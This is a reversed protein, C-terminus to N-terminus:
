KFYEMGEFANSVEQEVRGKYKIKEGMGGLWIQNESKKKGSGEKQLDIEQQCPTYLRGCDVTVLIKWIKQPQINTGLGEGCISYVQM